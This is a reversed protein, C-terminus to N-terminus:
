KFQAQSVHVDRAYPQAKAITKQERPKMAVDKARWRAGSIWEVTILITRSKHTNSVAVDNLAIGAEDEGCRVLRTTIFSSADGSEARAFSAIQFVLFLAIIKCITTNSM